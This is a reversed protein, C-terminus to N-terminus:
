SMSRCVVLAEREKFIHPEFNKVDMIASSEEEEGEGKRDKKSITTLDMWYILTMVAHQRMLRM